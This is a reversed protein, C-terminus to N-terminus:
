ETVFVANSLMRLAKVPSRVTARIAMPAPRRDIPLAYSLREDIETSRIMTSGDWIELRSGPPAVVDVQATLPVGTAAKIRGGMTVVTPGAVVRLDLMSGPTGDLDIFVRGSRIGALIAASTLGSAYVVTTPRGVTGVVPEALAGDHNDSGGIATIRGSKQLASLWFPVGSLPGEIGRQLAAAGGNVVEVADVATGAVGPMAWGCGMCGEGSPLAPHNISVLGGLAHVREVLARVTVPGGPTIRYDIPETVGFINFHGYFTTIERGPILLLKDFFPAAERMAAHSSTTNHDTIAVFDLGRAAATELTKFLPCPVRRGSQSQCSGDSHATHLHLDGRYWGPGRDAVPSPIAYGEGAKLFWLKATWRATIGPRINPIALALQWRGPEIRGPLYSPTADSEGITFDAKNGGSAGRLGYQDEIALDIFTKEARRDHDFAVVIRVTGPPVTFPVRRYHQHDARTIRGSLVRDPAREPTAADVHGATLIVLMIALLRVVLM